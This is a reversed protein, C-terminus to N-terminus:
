HGFPSYETEDKLENASVIENNKSVKFSLIFRNHKDSVCLIARNGM